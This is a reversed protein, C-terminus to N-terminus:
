NEYAGLIPCDTSYERNRCSVVLKLLADKMSQLEKIKADMIEIKKEALTRVEDCSSKSDVRLDLLEKIEQLSFGHRKSLCIFNLRKIDEETYVRYGSPKRQPKPLIGKREYFLFSHNSHKSKSKYSITWYYLKEDYVRM